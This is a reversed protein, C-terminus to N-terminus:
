IHKWRKRRVIDSVLSPDISFTKALHRQSVGGAAWRERIFLVDHETLKAKHHAEGHYHRGKSVKDAINDADTGLFLHAPNVCAPMDCSHCVILGSPIPGNVLEWSFRHAVVNRGNARLTGYGHSKGATWLWCTPTKEVYQWFRDVLPMSQNARFCVQSCFRAQGRKVSSAKALFPSGCEACTRPVTRKQPM